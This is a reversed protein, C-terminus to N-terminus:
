PRPSATAGEVAEDFSFRGRRLCRRASPSAARGGLGRIAARPAPRAPPPMRLLGGLAEASGRRTTSPRPRRSRSAACSAAAAARHPYRYGHERRSATACTSPPAATATTSSCARSCSRPRRAPSSTSCSRRRAPAADAAVEARAASRDARPVRHGGRPGARRTRELYDVYALVVEALDVELLDIEERLVLTLLLDFPGNFVELDLDLAAARVPSVTPRPRRRRTLRAPRRGDRPARGGSPRPSRERRRPAPRLMRELAEEDARLAAYRERVPALLEVVAEAVAQKFEGYGRARTRARGAESSAAPRGRRPDRDPEHHGAQRARARDREGSDTVRASSRRRSRRRARRAVYVTGQETGGTTSMKREPEQLDMIRAGIQPIVAEPVVFAEGYRANFREAVDRTLELHQRQDDGM